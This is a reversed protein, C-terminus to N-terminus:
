YLHSTVGTVAMIMCISTLGGIPLSIQSAFKLNNTGKVKGQGHQM